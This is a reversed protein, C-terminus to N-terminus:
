RARLGHSYRPTRWRRDGQFLTGRPKDLALIEGGNRTIAARLMDPDADKTLFRVSGDAFLASFNGQFLGGFKPLAQDPVYPLDEPKTWPVPSAAEVILITNSTGDTFDALRMPRQPEFAAGKGVLAQYYTRDPDKHLDGVPVYIRPM